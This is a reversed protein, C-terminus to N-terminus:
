AHLWHAIRSYLPIGVLINFPFSIALAATLSLAPNAQPIATRMAAPAAIYSASAALTALLVTGGISLGIAFGVVAGIAGFVVPAVLAFTALLAGHRRFGGMHETAILGMELLFLALVGKFLDVFLPSLGELGEQGAAWGIALGGLLLFVGRGLFVEHLLRGWETGPGFGRALVVGILIAPVELVVLFLIMQPEYSIGARGLYAVGVAFTGVSVSGYHAAIAAANARDFRGMYRLVIFALLALAMGMAIVAALEAALRSSSHRALEVGGKMGISLLLLMSVFDYIAPPLRLDARALGAAVGLVFFLVVPDLTSM